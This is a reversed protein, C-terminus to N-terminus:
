SSVPRTLRQLWGVTPHSMSVLSRYEPGGLKRSFRGRFPLPPTLGLHALREAWFFQDFHLPCTLQPTAMALACATTGSGGPHLIMCCRPLLLQHAVPRPWLLMGGLPVGQAALLDHADALPQWGGSLIVGPRGIIRLAGHVARLLFGPDPMLGLSGLSSVDVCVPRRASGREPPTDSSSCVSPHGCGAGGVICSCDSGGSGRCSYTGRATAMAHSASGHPQTSVAPPAAAHQETVRAPACAREIGRGQDGPLRRRRKHSVAGAAGPTGDIPATPPPTSPSLTHAPQADGSALDGLFTSTALLRLGQRKSALLWPCAGDPQQVWVASAFTRPSNCHKKMWTQGASAEGYLLPTAPTMPHVPRRTAADFLPLPHLHLTDRRFAAWRETFLPWEKMGVPGCQPGCSVPIQAAHEATAAAADASVDDSTSDKGTRRPPPPTHESELLAAYLDPLQQRFRREFSAPAPYPICYPAAAVTQVQLAEAIHYVELAFLNYVLLPRPVGYGGARDGVLARLIDLCEHWQREDNSGRCSTVSPSAGDCKESAQSGTVPQSTVLQVKLQCWPQTDLWVKHAQHTVGVVRCKLGLHQLQLALVMLPQVDGRTGFAVFVVVPLDCLM